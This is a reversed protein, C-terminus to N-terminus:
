ETLSAAVSTKGSATSPVMRISNDSTPNTSKNFRLVPPNASSPLFCKSDMRSSFSNISPFTLPKPSTTSAAMVPMVSAPVAAAPATSAPRVSATFATDESFAPAKAATFSAPSFAMVPMVSAPVAAAPATSAPRVSATFATDESFAPAKAATFSAPSFAMVPM